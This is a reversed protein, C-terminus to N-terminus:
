TEAIIVHRAASNEVMHSSWPWAFHHYKATLILFGLGRWFIGMAFLIALNGWRSLYVIGAASLFWEDPGGLFQNVTVAAFAYSFPDIFYVWSVVSPMVYYPIFVGCFLVAMAQHFNGLGYAVDLTRAILTAVYLVSDFVFMVGISVLVFFVFSLGDSRLGIIWYAPVILPLAILTNIPLTSLTRALYHATPSYMNDAQEREFIQQASM